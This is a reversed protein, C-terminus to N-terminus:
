DLLIGEKVRCWDCRSVGVWEWKPWARRPWRCTYVGRREGGRMWNSRGHCMVAISSGPKQVRTRNSLSWFAFLVFFLIKEIVRDTLGLHNDPSSFLFSIHFLSCIFKHIYLKIIKSVHDRFVSPKRSFSPLSESFQKLFFWLIQTVELHKQLTTEQLIYLM